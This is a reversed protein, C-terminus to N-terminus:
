ASYASYCYVVSVDSSVFKVFMSMMEMTPIRSLTGNGVVNVGTVSFIYRDCGANLREPMPIAIETENIGCITFFTSSSTYDRVEAFVCYGTIDPHVNRIDKTFPPDWTLYFTSNAPNVTLNVVPTLRGTLPYLITIM